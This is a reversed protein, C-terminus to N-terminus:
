RGYGTAAVTGTSNIDYFADSRYVTGICSAGDFQTTLASSWSPLLRFCQRRVRTWTVTRPQETTSQSHRNHHM